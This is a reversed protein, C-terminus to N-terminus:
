SFKDSAEMLLKEIEQLKLSIVAAGIAIPSNFNNHNYKLSQKTLMNKSNDIYSNPNKVHVVLFNNSAIKVQQFGTIDNWKIFGVSTATSNDVIGKSNIILAPKPKIMRSIGIIFTLGFFLIAVIGTIKIFTPNFRENHPIIEFYLCFGLVVFALSGLILLIIKKKSQPIIIEDNM